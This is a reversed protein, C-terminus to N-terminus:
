TAHRRKIAEAEIALVTGARVIYAISRSPEAVVSIEKCMCLATEPQKARPAYSIGGHREM